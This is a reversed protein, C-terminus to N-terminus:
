VYPVWQPPQPHQMAPPQYSAPQSAPPQMLRVITELADAIRDLADAVQTEHDRYHYDAV